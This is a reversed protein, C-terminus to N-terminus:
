IIDAIGLHGVLTAPKGDWFAGVVVLPKPYMALVSDLNKM